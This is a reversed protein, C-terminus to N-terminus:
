PTKLAGLAVCDFVLCLLHAWLSPFELDQKLRLSKLKLGPELISPIAGGCCLLGVQYSNSQVRIQLASFTMVAVVFHTQLHWFSALTWPDCLLWLFDKLTSRCICSRFFHTESSNCKKDGGQVAIVGKRLLLGSAVPDAPPLGAQPQSHM